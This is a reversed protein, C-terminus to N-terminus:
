CQNGQPRVYRQSTVDVTRRAAQLPIKWVKALHEPKVGRHAFANLAAVNYDGNHFAQETPFYWNSVEPFLYEHTHAVM